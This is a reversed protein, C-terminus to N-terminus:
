KPKVGLHQEWAKFVDEQKEVSGTIYHDGLIQVPLGFSRSATKSNQLKGYLEIYSELQKAVEKGSRLERLRDRDVLGNAKPIVRDMGPPKDDKSSMLFDHFRAFSPADLKAISLALKATTCAGRHSAAPDTVLKNCERDLPIPMLLIAVQDGYRELAREMTAHMKRCHACDYSVMEIVIHPADPSGIIPNKYTDLTIKGGLFKVLRKRAPQTDAPLATTTKASENASTARDTPTVSETAKTLNPQASSDSNPLDGNPKLPDAAHATTGGDKENSEASPDGTTSDAPREAEADPTAQIAVSSTPNTSEDNPQTEDADSFNMSDDLTVKQVDYTKGAFLYQGGILLVLLPLAGGLAYGLSPASAAASATPTSIAAPRPQGPKATRLAMMGSQMSRPANREALWGRVAIFTATSGIAIGLADTVLCYKCYDHIAFVQVGIFWLSAGAAVIALMVFATAIWRSAPESRVWLLLSLSALAAYCGLGMVAVPIGLWKSWSSSLVVDCGNGSGMGCGAVSSGTAASWALYATIGFALWALVALTCRVPLNFASETRSRLTSSRGRNPLPIYSASSPM